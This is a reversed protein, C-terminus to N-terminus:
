LGKEGLRQELEENMEIDCGFIWDITNTDDKERM